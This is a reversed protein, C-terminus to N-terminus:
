AAGKVLAVLRAVHEPPTPQMVGHGLNFVFPKGAMAAVLGRVEREMAAGGHLLLVPDLNGQVAIGDPMVAATLDTMHDIGVADVGTLAAYRAVHSGAARPFGIIPIAPHKAKLASVIRKTPEIVATDFLPAPVAGAWSDFLQLAEAGAEIQAMLYSITAATIRDIVASFLAPESWAMARTREYDTGGEGEIMYTAVTWPAGAFGILAVTDPLAARVRKITQMVPSLTEAFRADSLQALAAANRIPDLKPGENEVFAVSQGLAHPVLLIDAFLIAADMGFRRVPQLTVETALEPDLCFAIFNKAKARLARYEPLYRGAQRMLWVPPRATAHGQLNQLLPKMLNRAPKQPSPTGTRM